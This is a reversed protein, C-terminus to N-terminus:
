PGVDLHLKKTTTHSNRKVIVYSTFLSSTKLHVRPGSGEKRTLDMRKGGTTEFDPNAYAACVVTVVYVIIVVTDM